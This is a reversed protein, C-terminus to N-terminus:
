QKAIINIISVVDSIDINDDENLNASGLYKTNGAMTNIVAVIDSIDVKGDHNVDGKKYADTQVIYITKVFEDTDPAFIEIQGIREKGTKNADYSFTFSGDNFGEADDGLEIKMADAPPQDWSDTDSECVIWDMESDKYGINRVKVKRSGAANSIFITDPVSLVPGCWEYNAILFQDQSTEVNLAPSTGRVRGNRDTWNVFHYMEYQDVATFTVNGSNKKYTRYLNGRGSSRGNLDTRSCTIYPLLQENATIDININNKPRDTYDYKLLLVLSDIVIDADGTENLSKTILIDSWASPRSFLMVDETTHNKLKLLYSLLSSSESSPEKPSLHDGAVSYKVGWTHPNVKANRPIHDFWYLKGDKRFQSIGSHTIDLDMTGDQGGNGEVHRGMHLVSIDIIRVNEENAPFKGMEQFNIIVGDGNNIADLQEKSILITRETEKKSADYESIIKDTIDAIRETFVSKLNNYTGSDITSGGNKAIEEFREFWGVLNYEGEYPKLLRYEYAKRLYYDYRLLREKENQRMKDIYIMANLDRKSNGNFADRRLADLALVNSTMESATTTLSDFVQNIYNTLEIKQNALQEAEAMMKKWSKSSAILRNYEAKVQSSTSTKKTIASYLDSIGSVLPTLSQSISEYSNALTELYNGSSANKVDNIVKGINSKNIQDSQSKISKVISNWDGMSENDLKQIAFSLGTNVAGSVAAAAPGGVVSAVVTVVGKAIGFIKKWRNRRKVKKKAKKLLKNELKTIKKTLNDIKTTLVEAENQLDPIENVLSNFVNQNADLAQEALNAAIKSAEVQDALTQDIRNMWYYTYFTPIARDIENEYNALMVEFSLMPAWGATNGFYDFGRELRLLMEEMELACSQLEFKRDVFGEGEGETQLTSESVNRRKSLLELGDLIGEHKGGNDDDNDITEEEGDNNQSEPNLYGEIAELYERCTQMVYETQNNIYADNAHNLVASLYFPHLYSYADGVSEFHGSKGDKVSGSNTSGSKIGGQGGELACFCDVDVNSYIIGGNGGNGPTGNSNTSQGDAGNLVFRIARDGMLCKICLVINGAAAGNAGVGDTLTGFPSPTTNISTNNGNKDEFVLDRAYITINTQPFKLDSRVIMREAYVNLEYIDECGNLGWVKNKVADDFVVDKGAISISRVKREQNNLIMTKSSDTVVITYDEGDPMKGATNFANVESPTIPALTFLVDEYVETEGNTAIFKVIFSKCDNEAPYYYFLGTQENFKVEGNPNGEVLYSFTVDTSALSDATVYFGIGNNGNIITQPGIEEIEYRPLSDVPADDYCLVGSAVSVSDLTLEGIAIPYAPSLTILTGPSQSFASLGSVVLIISLLYRKM